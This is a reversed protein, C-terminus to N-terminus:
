EGVLDGLVIAQNLPVGELFSQRLAPEEISDAKQFVKDQARELLVSAEQRDGAAHLARAAHFHVEETRLAPMDGTRHLLQVAQRAYEAASLPDRQASRVRGMLSLAAIESRVMGTHRTETVTDWALRSAHELTAQSACATELLVQAYLNRVIPVLNILWTEETEQWAAEILTRAEGWRGPSPILAQALLATNYANWGSVGGREAEFRRSEDIAKEADQYQGLGIHLQALYNLAIPLEAHLPENRLRATCRLLRGRADSLRGLDFYSIGLQMENLNRAHQLVPDGSGGLRPESAYLREAELLQEVGDDLRRKSAQRGYEVRAVFLAVPDNHEEATDVAERLKDLAPLLGQTALLTKGRLLTTRAVLQQSRCRQAAQEAEAALADIHPGGASPHQGRWRVETLSLLLEIAEVLQRDRTPANAHLARAAQIAKECHREAEAFSLGEIAASRALAYHAAASAALREPGSLDLHRSIELRRGLTTGSNDDPTLADATLAHRSRKQQPTQQDYLVEWLAQHQFRYYDSPEDRAWDPPEAAAIVQHTRAIRRLREMVEDHTAGTVKALPGSLFDQGQVAATALLTQDQDALRKMRTEVVRALSEPLVIREGDDPHWEDLCLQVFVPHGATLRSLRPSLTVPAGPHRSRVLEAVASDPLGDLPRRRVLGEHEWRRLLEEVSEAAADSSEGVGYSLVLGFPENSLAPLLTDLVHLSSPDINQVDDIVVILPPGTRAQELLADAIQTVVGQQFPLLSDFPISGSGLAAETVDRGITLVAGLGPVLSSLLEPASRAVSRGTVGLLKKWAKPAEQQREALQLLVDGVPGYNLDPGIGPRCRTTVVRCPAGEPGESSVRRVFEGLLSSKGMGSVGDVILASGRRDAVTLVM